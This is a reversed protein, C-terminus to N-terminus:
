TRYQTMIDFPEWKKGIRKNVLNHTLWSWVKADNDTKVDKLQFPHVKLLDNFHDRCDECPFSESYEDVIVKLEEAGANHMCAWDSRLAGAAPLLILWRLM